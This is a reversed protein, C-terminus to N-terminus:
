VTYIVSQIVRHLVTWHSVIIFLTNLNTQILQFRKQIMHNWYEHTLIDFEFEERDRLILINNKITSLFPKRVLQPSWPNIDTVEGVPRRRGRFGSGFLSM